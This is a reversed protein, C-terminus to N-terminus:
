EVTAHGPATLVQEVLPKVAATLREQGLPTPHLFDAMITPAISGDREVLVAGVDHLSVDPPPTWTSLRQNTDSVSRRLPDDPSEGAPLVSLLLVPVGPLRKRLKALVAQIGAVTQDPSFGNGLNNVGILLVVLRASTGDLTGDDIRWLVHQTQDGGIGLNLPTYRGFARKFPESECWAETISDGLFLIEARARHPAALQAEHRRRWEALSM